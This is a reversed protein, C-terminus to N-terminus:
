GRSGSEARAIELACRVSGGARALLEEAGLADLQLLEMVIRRARERLKQSAPLLHTMLNGEVYGLRVMVTTSLMHLVMKQALGGKMRTSGSIVEPGTEVVISVEAADALPCDRNCTIAITRAGVEHAVELAALTFPTHGSASIAVVADGPALGRERLELNAAQVDDEAGEVARTLARAGGAIVAQVRRPPLGFTPMLEAADLAGMRGSTGAGVNFWIGGGGIVGVLVDVACEVQPLAREVARLAERDQEHIARLVDGTSKRDLDQTSALVGETGHKGHSDSMRGGFPTEAM